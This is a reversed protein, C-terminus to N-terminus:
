WGRLFAHRDEGTFDNAKAADAGAGASDLLGCECGCDGATRVVKFTATAPQGRGPNGETVQVISTSANTGSVISFVSEDNAITGFARDKALTAGTPQSLFCSSAERGGRRKTDGNVTVDSGKTQEGAAFTLTGTAALYDGDAWRRRAM